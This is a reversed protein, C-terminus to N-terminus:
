KGYFVSGTVNSRPMASAPVVLNYRKRYDFIETDSRSHRLGLKPRHSTTFELLAHLVTARQM